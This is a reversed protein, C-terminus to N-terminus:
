APKQDDFSNVTLEGKSVNNDQNYKELKKEIYTKITDLLESSIKDNKFSETIIESVTMGERVDVQTQFDAFKFKLQFLPPNKNVTTTSTSNDKEENTQLSTSHHGSNQSLDEDKGTLDTTEEVEGKTTEPLNFNLKSKDIEEELIIQIPNTNYQQNM